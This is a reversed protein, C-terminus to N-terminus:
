WPVALAAVAWSAAALPLRLIWAPWDPAFPPGAALEAAAADLGSM